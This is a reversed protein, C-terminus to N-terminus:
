GGTIATLIYVTDDPGVMLSLRPDNGDRPAPDLQEGNLFLQHTDSVRGNQDLLAAGLRPHEAVLQEVCAGLTPGGVDIQKAFDVFRLLAGSFQFRM